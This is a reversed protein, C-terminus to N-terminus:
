NNNNTYTTLEKQLQKYKSFNNKIRFTNSPLFNNFDNNLVKLFM